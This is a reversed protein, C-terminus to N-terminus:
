NNGVTSKYIETAGITVKQLMESKTGGLLAVLMCRTDCWMWIRRIVMMMRTVTILVIMVRIGMTSQWLCYFMPSGMEVVGNCKVDRIAM